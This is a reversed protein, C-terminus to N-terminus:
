PVTVTSTVSSNVADRVTIIATKPTGTANDKTTITLTTGSPGGVAATAVSEDSSTATYKPGGGAIPVGGFVQYEDYSANEPLTVAAPASTYLAVVPAVTATINVVGNAADRVTVIASGTSKGTIVMQDDIENGDDDKKFEVDVVGENASTLSYPKTGGGITFERKADDGPALTITAQATTYLPVVSAATVAITKVVNAADRVTVTVLGPQLGTLTFTTGNLATSVLGANSSSVDYPAVGGSISFERKFASGIGLSLTAPATTDLPMSSGVTVDISIATGANDIVGVTAAGVRVGFVTLVKGDIVGFATAADANAVRYPPVGGSVGYSNAAGPLLTIEAGATSVLNPQSPNGGPSGGGGGCAALLAALLLGIVIRISKM